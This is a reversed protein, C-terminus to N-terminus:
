KSRTPVKPIGVKTLKTGAKPKNIGAFHKEEEQKHLKEGIKAAERGGKLSSKKPEKNLNNIGENANIDDNKNFSKSNTSNKLIYIGSSKHIFHNQNLLAKGELDFIKNNKAIGVIVGLKELITEDFKINKDLIIKGFEGVEGVKQGNIDYAYLKKNHWELKELFNQISNENNTFNGLEHHGIVQEEKHVTEVSFIENVTIKETRKIIGLYALFKKFKSLDRKIEIERAKELYKKEKHEVERIVLQGDIQEGKEDKFHLM